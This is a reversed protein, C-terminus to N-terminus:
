IKGINETDIEFGEPGEKKYPIKEEEIGFWLYVEKLVNYAIVEPKFDKTSFTMSLTAKDKPALHKENEFLQSTSNVGYPLLYSKVDNLFMNNFDVRVTISEPISDFDNIVLEYFSFVSYTVEILAVPNIKPKGQSAHALFSENAQCSFILTGDRYLDVM